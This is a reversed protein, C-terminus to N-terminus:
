VGAAVVLLAADGLKNLADLGVECIELAVITPFQDGEKVLLFDM